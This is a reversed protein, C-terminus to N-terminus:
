NPEEIELNDVLERLGEITKAYILFGHNKLNIVGCHSHCRDSQILALVASTERMDGCPFYDHTPPAGKVYAHGHIFFNVDPLCNFLAAQIPADVSPKRPGWYDLGGVLADHARPAAMVMDSVSLHRKDSNRPSVLMRDPYDEPLRVGPFLKQCRTSINGFYREGIANQVQAAVLRNCEMLRNLTLQVDTPWADAQRTPVRISSSTWDYLGMVARAIDDIGASEEEWYNGLADVLHFHYKGTGLDLRVEIVANGRMAFIRTVADAKTTNQRMVKSGVLVAGRGKVPYIKEWDNDVHPLWLVLKYGRVDRPLEHVDGGNRVRAAQLEDALKVIVKSPKGGMDDWVGGVVLTNPHAMEWTELLHQMEEFYAAGAEPDDRFGDTFPAKCSLKIYCDDCCTPDAATSGMDNCVPCVEYQYSLIQEREYLGLKKGLGLLVIGRQRPTLLALEEIYEQKM